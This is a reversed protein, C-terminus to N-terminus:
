KKGISQNFQAEFENQSELVTNIPDDGMTEKMIQSLIFALDRKKGMEFAKMAADTWQESFIFNSLEQENMM